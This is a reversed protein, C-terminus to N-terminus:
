TVTVLSHQDSFHPMSVLPLIQMMAMVADFDDVSRGNPVCNM